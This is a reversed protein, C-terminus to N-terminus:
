AKQTKLSSKAKKLEQTTKEMEEKAKIMEEKAKKMERIAQEQENGSSGKENFDFNFKLDDTEVNSKSKMKELEEPSYDDGGKIVKGDVIVVPKKGDKQIIIKSSKGITGSEPANFDFNFDFNEPISDGGGFNFRKMFDQANGFGGMAIMNSNSPEGFGVEDGQKYFKITNIPKQNDLVMSGKSGNKDAYQVKIATIENEGNRKVDSYSITVGYESLAKIDDKMEQEPTNKNWTMIVNDKEITEFSKRDQSFGNAVALLCLTVVLYFKSKM